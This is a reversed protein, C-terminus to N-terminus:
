PLPPERFEFEDQCCWCPGGAYTRIACVSCYYHPDHLKGDRISLVRILELQQQPRQWATIQLFQDRIRPDQFARTRDDERMLYYRDGSETVFAYDRTEETCPSPKRDPDLCEIRGRFTVEQNASLSTAAILAAAILIAFRIM